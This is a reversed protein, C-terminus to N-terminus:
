ASGWPLYGADAEFMQMNIPLMGQCVRDPDYIEFPDIRYPRYGVRGLVAWLYPSTSATFISHTRPDAAATNSAAAYATRWDDQIDSDVFIDVIRTNGNHQSLLFYGRTRADERLLYGSYPVTPCALMYNLLPVTRVFDSFAGPPRELVPTLSTDYQEVREVSWAGLSIPWHVIKAAMDRILRLPPKLGNGATARFVQWPRIRRVYTVSQGICEYGIRDLLRRADPTGGITFYTKIGLQKLLRLWIRIGAGRSNRDAAWDILTMTQIQRNASRLRAPCIGVHSLIQDGKVMAFSRSTPWDPRSLFYKWQTLQTLEPHLLPDSLDTQFVEALFQVIRDTHTAEMQCFLNESM